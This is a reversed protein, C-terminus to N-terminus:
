SHLASFLGQVKADIKVAMQKVSWLNFQPCSSSHSLQAGENKVTECLDCCLCLIASLTYSSHLKEPIFACSSHTRIFVNMCASVHQKLTAPLLSKYCRSRCLLIPVWAPTASCPLMMVWIDTDM